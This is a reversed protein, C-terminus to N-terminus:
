AIPVSWAVVVKKSFLVASNLIMYWVTLTCRMLGMLPFSDRFYSVSPFMVSFICIQVIQQVVNSLYLFSITKNGLKKLAEVYESGSYEADVSGPLFWALYICLAVFYISSSGLIIYQSVIFQHPSQYLYEYLLFALIVLIVAM